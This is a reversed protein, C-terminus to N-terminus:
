PNEGHGQRKERKEIRYERGERQVKDGFCVNIIRKGGM